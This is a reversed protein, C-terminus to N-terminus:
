VECRSREELTKDQQFKFGKKFVKVAMKRSQERLDALPICPRSGSTSHPCSHVLTKPFESRPEIWFRSNFSCNGRAGFCLPYLVAFYNSSNQNINTLIASTLALRWDVHLPGLVTHWISKRTRESKFAIVPYASRYQVLLTSLGKFVHM